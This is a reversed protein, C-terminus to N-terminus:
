ADDALAADDEEGDADEEEEEEGDEDEDSDDTSANDMTDVLCSAWTDADEIWEKISDVASETSLVEALAMEIAQELRGAHDELDIAVEAQEPQEEEDIFATAGALDGRVGLMKAEANGLATQVDDLASGLKGRLARLAEELDDRIEEVGVRNLSLM